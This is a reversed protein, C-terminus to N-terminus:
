GAEEETVTEAIAASGGNLLSALGHGAAVAGLCFVVSVVINILARDLAGTRILDLTQLSFSSFTTFGGCFGVMLFLRATDPLPYRGNELTLTGVFGIVFSGVINILITGAPVQRSIPMAWLAIWYRATTGLAGGLAIWFTDRM